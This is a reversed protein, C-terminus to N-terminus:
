HLWSIWEFLILHYTKRHQISHWLKNRKYVTYKMVYYMRILNEEGEIERLEEESGRGDPGVRNRDRETLFHPSKLLFTEQLKLYM